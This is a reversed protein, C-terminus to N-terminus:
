LALDIHQITGVEGTEKLFLGTKRIIGNTDNTEMNNLSFQTDVNGLYIAGVDAEKLSILRDNGDVDKYCVKLKSFIEDAEDIWGNGDKDYQALDRFGDGSSTGFLESGDNIKGDNNKDLALFGSGKGVFSIMDEKGDADIDFLFKRDSVSAVNTDINIVLPDTLMITSESYTESQAMFARSMEVSIGFSISRGDATNVVGQGVFATTEMEAFFSSTVTQKTLVSVTRGSSTVALGNSFNGFSKMNAPKLKKTDNMFSINKDDKIGRLARLIKKLTEVMADEKIESESVAEGTKRANQRRFSEELNKKLQEEQEKAIDKKAQKIQEMLSKSENSIDISASKGSTIITEQKNYALKSYGRSSNMTISSAGIIM